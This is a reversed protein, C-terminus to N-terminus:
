IVKILSGDSKNIIVIGYNGTTIAAIAPGENRQLKCDSFETPLYSASFPKLYNAWKVTGDNNWMM